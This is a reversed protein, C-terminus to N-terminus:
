LNTILFYFIFAKIIGTLLVRIFAYIWTIMNYNYTGIIFALFLWLLSGGISWIALTQQLTFKLLNYFILMYALLDFGQIFPEFTAFTKYNYNIKNQYDLYAVKAYTILYSLASSGIIFIKLPQYSFYKIFYYIVLNYAILHRGGNLIIYTLWQKNTFDSYPKIGKNKAYFYTISVIFLISIVSTIFLKNSLSLGFTKGLYLAFMAMFGYYLPAVFSYLKFSYNYYKEDVLALLALHPTFVPGSTGVVFYKLYDM